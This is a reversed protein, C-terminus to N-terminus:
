RSQSQSTALGRAMNAKSLVQTLLDQGSDEEGHRALRAEGREGQTGAEGAGETLRGPQGPKQHRASGLTMVTSEGEREARRGMWAAVVAEASKESRNMVTAREPM